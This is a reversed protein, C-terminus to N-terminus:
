QTAQAARALVDLKFGFQATSGAEEVLQNRLMNDRFEPQESRAIAVGIEDYSKVLTGGAKAIQVAADKPVAGEKYLVIYNEASYAYVALALYAFALTVIFRGKM